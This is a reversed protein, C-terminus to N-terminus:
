VQTHPFAASVRAAQCRPSTSQRRSTFAGSARSQKESELTRVWQTPKQPCVPSSGGEEAGAPLSGVLETAEPASGRHTGEHHSWHEGSKNVAWESKQADGIDTYKKIAYVHTIALYIRYMFHLFISLKLLHPKSVNKLNFFEHLLWPFLLFILLQWPNPTFPSFFLCFM